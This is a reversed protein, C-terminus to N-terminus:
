SRLDIIDYILRQFSHHQDDPDYPVIEVNNLEPPLTEVPKYLVPIVPKERNIFYRYALRVYRSELAQPSVILLLLWCEHLAQEVAVQWDDSGQALYQDVWIEIGADQLALTLPVVMREWDSRAYAVFINDVLAGSSLGTGLQTPNRQRSFQLEPLRKTERKTDTPLGRESQNEAEAEDAIRQRAEETDYIYHLRVATGLEITDFLQLPKSDILRNGNLLTGNTSELDKASYGDVNSFLQLHWRSVEPDQIVIDNSLDRGMTIIDETLSYIRRPNPGIEVVLAYQHTEGPAIPTVNVPPSVEPELVTQETTELAPNHAYELTIHDGLEILNGDHLMRHTNVRQGNVYTGNTSGLDHLEYDTERWVLSCQERSVDNDDFVIDNRTGRGITVTEKDLQYVEGTQPGRRVTLTAM